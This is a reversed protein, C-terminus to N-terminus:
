TTALATIIDTARKVTFGIPQLKDDGTIYYDVAIYYSRGPPIVWPQKQEYTPVRNDGFTDRWQWTFNEPTWPDGDKILQIMEAKPVEIPNVWGLFVHSLVPLSSVLMQNNYTADGSYCAAAASTVTILWNEAAAGKSDAALGATAPNAELLDNVGIPNVVLEHGRAGAGKYGNKTEYNVMRVADLIRPAGRAIIAAVVPNREIDAFADLEQGLIALDDASIDLASQKEGKIYVADREYAGLVGAVYRELVESPLLITAM